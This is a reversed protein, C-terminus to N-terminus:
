ELAVLVGTLKALFFFPWHGVQSCKRRESRVVDQRNNEAPATAGAQEWQGFVASFWSHRDPSLIAEDIDGDGIADIGSKQAHEQQSLKVRGREMAVDGLGVFEIMEGASEHLDERGFLSQGVFGPILAGGVRNSLVQPMESGISEVVHEDQAAVLKVPHIVPKEEIVVNIM